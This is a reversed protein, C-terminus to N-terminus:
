RGGVAPSVLMLDGTTDGRRYSAAVAVRYQWGGGTDHEVVSTGRTTGALDMNLLCQKVGGGAPECGDSGQVRFIEYVIRTRSSFPKRWSLQTGGAVPRARLHLADSFPAENALPDSRM